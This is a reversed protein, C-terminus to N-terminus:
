VHGCGIQGCGHCFTEKDIETMDEPDVAYRHDDGVMVVLAKGTEREEPEGPFIGEDLDWYRETQMGVFTCAVESFGKVRVYSGIKLDSM